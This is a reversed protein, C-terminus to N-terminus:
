ARVREILRDTWTSKRASDPDLREDLKLRDWRMPRSDKITADPWLGAKVERLFKACDPQGNKVCGVYTAAEPTPLLRPTM